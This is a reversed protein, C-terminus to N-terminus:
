AAQGTSSRIVLDAQIEAGSRGTLSGSEVTHVLEDILAAAVARAPQHFTTLGPSVMRAAAIDDFGVVSLDGPVDLGLDSAAQMAGLALLDNVAVIATPRDEEQLMEMAAKHGSVEHFGAEVVRGTVADGHIAVARQFSRLRAAGINFQLPEALCDIRHHGLQALHDVAPQLCDISPEVVPFGTAGEPRGFAVFPIDADVLFHIRPDDLETRVVVFGDVRKRRVALDYADLPNSGEVPTSLQLEYGRASGEAVLGTLLDGFFPDSFRLSDGTLILGISHTKTQPAKLRRAELNPTYGLREAAERAREKTTEAVDDHANLARSAQTVSLQAERAVDRLTPRKAM